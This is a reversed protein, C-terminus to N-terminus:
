NHMCNPFTEAKVSTISTLVVGVYLVYATYFLCKSVKAESILYPYPDLHCRCNSCARHTVAAYIRHPCADPHWLSICMRSSNVKHM